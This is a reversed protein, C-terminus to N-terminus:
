YASYQNGNMMKRDNAGKILQVIMLTHVHKGIPLHANKFALREYCHKSAIMAIHVPYNTIQETSGCFKKNSVRGLFQWNDRLVVVVDETNHCMKIPIVMCKDLSERMEASCTPDERAAAIM